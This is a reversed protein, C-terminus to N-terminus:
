DIKAKREATATCKLYPGFGTGRSKHSTRHVHARSKDVSNAQRQPWPARINKKGASLVERQQKKQAHKQIVVHKEVRQARWSILEETIGPDNCLDKPLRGAM